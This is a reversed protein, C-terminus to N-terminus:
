KPPHPFNLAFRLRDNLPPHTYLWFVIFRPPNPDELDEEGLVQFSRATVENANPILTQVVELGYVDAAHEQRRSFANGVPAGFFSMVNLLLLLVGLAAWDSPGRIGWAPGRRAILWELLCYALFLAFLLLALFFSVGKAVHHMVYHGMEHGVICLLEDPTSKRISTDWIVIRTSSGLGSVYANIANTKASADMLFIRDRPIPYGAAYTLRVISETLQPYKEQLPSFKNFLPDIYWPAIFVLFVSFPIACLWAHFWWTRPKRHILAFLLRIALFAIVITLIQSKTWDWFWSAWPQVSLQYHVSLSHWYLRIPLNLLALVAFTAPVVIAAQWRPSAARTEAFDRLAPFFRFRLLLLLIGINWFVSIFYLRYGARSYAVAKEYKEPPLSYATTSTHPSPSATADGARQAPPSPQSSFAPAPAAFSGLLLFLFLCSKAGTTRPFCMPLTYVRRPIGTCAPTIQLYAASAM